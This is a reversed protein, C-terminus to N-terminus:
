TQSTGSAISIVLGGNFPEQLSFIDLDLQKEELHCVVFRYVLRVQIILQETAVFDFGNTATRIGIQQCFRELELFTKDNRSDFSSGVLIM